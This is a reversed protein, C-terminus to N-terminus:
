DRRWFQWWPRRSRTSLLARQRHIHFLTGEDTITPVVGHHNQGTSGTLPKKERVLQDRSSFM